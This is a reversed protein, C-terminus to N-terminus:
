NAYAALIQKPTLYGEFPYGKIFFAPTGGVGLARGAKFHEQVVPSIESGAIYEGKFAAQLLMYPATSEAITSMTKATTDTLGYRPYLMFEITIGAQTYDDINEHVKQCWGCSIDTFMQVVAKENEAKHVIKNPITDIYRKFDAQSVLSLSNDTLKLPTAGTLFVGKEKDVYIVGQNTILTTLNLSSLEANQSSQYVEVGESNLYQEIDSALASNATLTFLGAIVLSHFIAGHRM